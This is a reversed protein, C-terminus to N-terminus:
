DGPSATKKALRQQINEASTSKRGMADISDNDDSSTGRRELEVRRLQDGPSDLQHVIIDKVKFREEVSIQYYM